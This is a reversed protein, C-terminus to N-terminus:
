SFYHEMRGEIKRSWIWTKHTGTGDLKVHEYEYSITDKPGSPSRNLNSAM